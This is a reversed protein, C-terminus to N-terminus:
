GVQRRHYAMAIFFRATHPQIRKKFLKSPPFTSLFEPAPWNAPSNPKTGGKTMLILRHRTSLEALTEAVGPLLEIEQDAIARAIGLVRQRKEETVPAASLQEFCALLARTFSPLGYGHTVITEREVDNLARRVESPSYQNHNLYRIFDAIAREFYVYNEWLTDDADIFLTQGPAFQPM